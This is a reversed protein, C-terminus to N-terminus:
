ERLRASCVRHKSDVHWAPLPSAFPLPPRALLWLASASTSGGPVSKPVRSRDSEVDGGLSCRMEGCLDGYLSSVRLPMAIERLNQTMLQPRHAKCHGIFGFGM